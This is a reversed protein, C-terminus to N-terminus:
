GRVSKYSDAALEPSAERNRSRRMLPVLLNLAALGALVFIAGGIGLMFRIGIRDAWVSAILSGVLSALASTTLFAGSVRGRLNDPVRAQVLTNMGAVGFLVAVGAILAVVLTVPVSQAVAIVVDLLGLSLISWALMREPSVRKTVSGIFVSAVIGGLGQATLTWAYIQASGHLVHRVFPALCVAVMSNGLFVLMMVLFVLSIWRQDLVFRVGLLWDSWVRGLRTGANPLGSVDPARGEFEARILSILLASVVFTTADAVVVGGLGVHQLLLAGLSSGVLVALFGGASFAANATPLESETVIHPLAANGFPGVFHAVSAGLFGVIYVIWLSSTSHVFLLPLLVLGRVWDSAIIVRKREWRDAFIGGISSFLVMPVTESIFTAGSALTSGSISYVYYPLAAILIFNGIGSILASWWLLGYDRQRLLQLVRLGRM